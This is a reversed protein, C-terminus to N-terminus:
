AAGDVGADDGLLLAALASPTDVLADPQEELLREATAAGWSVAVAACGAARAAQVDWPADGVYAARGPVVGMRELALLIPEPEPKHRDTDDFTVVTDFTVPPPVIGFALDVADRSKSTVVGVRIDARELRLLLDDVGEFGRLMRETNAHNWSRYTDFLEQAREESFLRMQHLLPRGIGSLLLEDPLATGLVTRTAHQHSALILPITDILTGDLDFVVASLRSREM